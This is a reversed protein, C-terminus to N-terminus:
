AVELFSDRTSSAIDPGCARLLVAELAARPEPCSSRSRWVVIGDGRVLLVGTLEMEMARAFVQPAVAFAAGESPGISPCRIDLGWGSRATRLAEQWHPAESELVLLSLPAQRALDRTSLPYEGDSWLHPLLSGPSTTPCYSAHDYVAKAVPRPEPCVFGANISWGLDTGTNLFVERQKDIARGVNDRMKQGKADPMALRALPKLGTKMLARFLSRRIGSPLIRVAGSESLGVLKAFGSPDLGTAQLVQDSIQTLQRARSALWRAVQLREVMYSSVLAPHASDRLGGNMMLSLRWALSSADQIGHNLGFAGHATFGAAADGALLVRGTGYASSERLEMTWSRISQIEVPFRHDGIASAILELARESTMGQAPEVAPLVITTLVWEKEDKTHASLTGAFGPSMVWYLASPRAVSFTSLDARFHIQAVDQRDTSKSTIGALQRVTSHAGDAGILYDVEIRTRRGELRDVAAFSVHDPREDLGEIERNELFEVLPNSRLAERLMADAVNQSLLLPRCPSAALLDATYSPDEGVPVCRGLDVGSLSTCWTIYRLKLPPPSLERMEEALDVDISRLAEMSRASWVNGRPHEDTRSLRDVVISRVGQKALLLALTAGTPGAGIIAVRATTSRTLPAVNRSTM